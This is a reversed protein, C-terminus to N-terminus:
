NGSKKYISGYRLREYTDKYNLLKRLLRFFIFLLRDILLPDRKKIKYFMKEQHFNHENSLSGSSTISEPQLRYSSLIKDIKHFKSQRIAFDCFLEGDWNSKNNINFGNCKDFIDSKFFTSPQSLIVGKYAFRNLNMKDSYFRRLVRSSENVIFSNGSLVDCDTNNAFYNMVCSISNPELYDDSNLFGYIDGSARNFGKNLGDAPGNDKEFINIIKKGYNLILERSGDTSGADVIIYEINQYNQDLVSEICEKLFKVQNYSITVISIKKM